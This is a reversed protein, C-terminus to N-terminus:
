IDARMRAGKMLAADPDREWTGLCPVFPATDDSALSEGWIGVERIRAYVPGVRRGASAEVRPDLTSSQVSM